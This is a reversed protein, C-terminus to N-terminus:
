SEQQYASIAAYESELIRPLRIFIPMLKRYAETAKPNPEHSHVSGVMERVEELSELDGQGYMGLVVAGLCSSEFSEPIQVEQDFVDALMQRWLESRAFGGTAQVRKPTGILEELALLVSYLNMIIGELVARIMHEKKHHMGLGFFSGRANANWLPAREGSMYPHFILGDSGPAVNEAIDTLVEYPDKGLRKAVEVEAAALEDRVWRFIMGGNNVPGGIVWHKDTLAYCFIRGKPDTVPRDTVARIAGSTGITVAVVGPEIANVGLNSLVGDSAGVVFPTEPAIGTMRAYEEKLGILSETTSVPKSLQDKTVGAVKLAGEDWDLNELHFMGTASAISYDIVYKGFLRHFIFEKISIFKSAKYFLGPHENQLWALKVLPSMPHIPTGTRRYIEIGNYETNIKEAWSASRNDAWTISNTIPQDKEDVLILSHMASSFSVFEIDGNAHSSVERMCKLVAQFIEEPDQEATGPEPTHLPYEVGYRFLMEGKENFLVAKTSTTGIDVGIMQQSM